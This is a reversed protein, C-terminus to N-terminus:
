GCIVIGIWVLLSVIAIAKLSILRYTKLEPKFLPSFQWHFVAANFGAIALLLLKFRFATNIVLVSPQAAFLLFGSVAAVIFSMQALRLLYRV